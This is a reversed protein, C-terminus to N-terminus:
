STFKCFTAQGSISTWHWRLRQALVAGFCVISYMGFMDMFLGPIYAWFFSKSQIVSTFFHNKQWRVHHSFLVWLYSTARPVKLWGSFNQLAKAHGTSSQLTCHTMIYWIQRDLLFSNQNEHIDRFILQFWLFHRKFSSEGISSAMHIRSTGHWLKAWAIRVARGSGWGILWHSRVWRQGRGGLARTARSTTLYALKELSWWNQHHCDLLTEFM